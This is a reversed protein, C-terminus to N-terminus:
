IRKNRLISYINLKFNKLAKTMKADYGKPKIGFYGKDMYIPIGRKSLDIQSDHISATTVAYSRMIPIVNDDTLIHAKYGFYTKNNKNTFTGDKSRRRQVLESTELYKEHGPDSTIFTADQITGNKIKIGKSDLQRQLENWIVIDRGTTSLRESCGYQGQM